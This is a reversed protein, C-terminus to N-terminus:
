LTKLLHIVSLLEAANSLEVTSTVFIYCNVKGTNLETIETLIQKRSEVHSIGLESLDDDTLTLFAEMDVQFVICM